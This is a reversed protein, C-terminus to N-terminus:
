KPHGRKRRERQKFVCLEGCMSCVSEDGAPVLERVEAAHVPDILNKILDRWNREARLKAVRDDWEIFRDHRRAIDAAHAAIRTAIVGEKVEKPGPLSLHESPTVYCLFDAGNMAAIAGGIAATIHDYGAAVDTVLPGLVYFPANNCLSKELRVQTAIENIPVHGPGEIMAQVGADRAMGALRGLTILEEIQAADGADSLAGPRLGDGLSLVVDHEYCIDLVEQFREYLPNEQDHYIMWEALITGGRSVIDCIRTGKELSEVAKRTVGCHVTVFDVGDEVHLKIADLMDDPTMEIVSGRTRASTVAADYIPVSGVPLSTSAIIKRRIAPLDGGTSLDMITDAGADEAARLKELEFDVDAKDASTGINANVKVRLIRGIGVGPTSGRLRNGLVISEGKAVSEALAEPSVDEEEAVAQVLPTIRGERASLLESM